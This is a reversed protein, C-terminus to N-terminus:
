VRVQCARSLNKSLMLKVTPSGIGTVTIAEEKFSWYCLPHAVWVFEPEGSVNSHKFM